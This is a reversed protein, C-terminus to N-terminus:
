ANLKTKFWDRIQAKTRDPKSTGNAGNELAVLRNEIELFAEILVKLLRPDAMTNIKGDDSVAEEDIDTTEYLPKRFKM